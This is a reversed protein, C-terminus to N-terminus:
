QNVVEFDIVWVWPNSNWNKYLSDWLEKFAQIRPRDQQMPIGEAICGDNDIQSVREVRVGTVKLWIRAYKIPMHISPKWKIPTDYEEVKGNGGTWSAYYIPYGNTRYTNNWTERVYLLDGTQYPPKLYISDDDIFSEFLCKGINKETVSNKVVGQFKFPKHTPLKVPRRTCVKDGRLVAKVMETNFIIPLERM